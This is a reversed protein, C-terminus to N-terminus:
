LVSVGFFLLRSIEEIVPNEGRRRKYKVQFMIEQLLGEDQEAEHVGTFLWM